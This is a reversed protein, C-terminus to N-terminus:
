PKMVSQLSAMANCYTGKQYHEIWVKIDGFIETVQIDAEKLARILENRQRSTTNSYYQMDVIAVPLGFVPYVAIPTNYSYYVGDKVSASAATANQGDILVQILKKNYKM